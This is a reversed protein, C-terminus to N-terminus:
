FTKKRLILVLVEYVYAEYVYIWFFERIGLIRLLFNPNKLGKQNLNIPEPCKKSEM